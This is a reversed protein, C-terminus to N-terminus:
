NELRLENSGLSAFISALMQDDIQDLRAPRWNPSQDKDVLVARVGEYFDPERLMRSCIRYDMMLCESLSMEKGRRFAEFTVALSLPSRSCFATLTDTVLTSRSSIERTSESKLSDLIETLSAHAFCDEAIERLPSLTESCDQPPELASLAGTIGDSLLKEWLAGIETHRVYHTALGLEVAALGDIRQGILGMMLGLSGLKSLFHSAGVDPFFGIATEPMALVTRDTALQFRGLTSIGVGGGMTIGDMCALYPKSFNAIRHDLRYESRFYEEGFVAAVERDIQGAATQGSLYVSKVDAGACFGRDGAGTIVVGEVGSDSEWRQLVANFERLMDLSLANLARPRNLEIHGLSGIRRIKLSDITKM